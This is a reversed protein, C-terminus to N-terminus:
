NKDYFNREYIQILEGKGLSPNGATNKAVAKFQEYLSDLREFV